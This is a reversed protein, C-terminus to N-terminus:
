RQLQKWGEGVPAGDIFTPPQSIMNFRLTLFCNTRLQFGLRYREGPGEGGFCGLSDPLKLARFVEERTMGPKLFRLRMPIQILVSQPVEQGSGKPREFLSFNEEFIENKTPSRGPHCGLAFIIPLLAAFAIVGYRPASHTHM